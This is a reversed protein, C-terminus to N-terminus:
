GCGDTNRCLSTDDHDATAITAATLKLQAPLRVAKVHVERDPNRRYEGLSALSWLAFVKFSTSYKISNVIGKQLYKNRRKCKLM